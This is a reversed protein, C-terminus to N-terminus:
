NRSQKKFSDALCALHRWLIGSRSRSCAQFKQRTQRNAKALAHFIWWSVEAVSRRLFESSLQVFQRIPNGIIPLIYFGHADRRVILRARNQSRQRRLRRFVALRELFNEAIDIPEDNGAHHVPSM